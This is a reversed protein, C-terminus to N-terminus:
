IDGNLDALLLVNDGQQTWKTITQALDLLLAVRPCVYQHISDFYWQQQAYVSHLQSCINQCPQYAFIIHLKCGSHSLLTCVLWWGLGFPDKSSSMNASALGFHEELNTGLSIRPLTIPQSLEVCPFM